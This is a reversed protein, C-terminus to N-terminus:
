PATQTHGPVIRGNITQAPVYHGPPLRDRVAFVVLGAGTLLLFLLILGLQRAPPGDLGRAVAIRWLLLALLPAVFVSMEALRIM